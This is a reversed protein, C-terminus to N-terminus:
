SHTSIFLKVLFNRHAKWRNGEQAISQICLLLFYILIRPYSFANRSILRFDRLINNKQFIGGRM